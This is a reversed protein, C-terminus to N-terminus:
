ILYLNLGTNAMPSFQQQQQSTGQALNTAMEGGSYSFMALYITCNGYCRPILCCYLITCNGYCRPILCCYITSNDYCRPILCCYITCNGYCCPILCCYITCNGYYRHILCCYITCNDYDMAVMFHVIFYIVTVIAVM